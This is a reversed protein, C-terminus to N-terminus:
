FQAVEFIFQFTLLFGVFQAFQKRRVKPFILFLELLWLSKGPPSGYARGAQMYINHNFIEKPEFNKM